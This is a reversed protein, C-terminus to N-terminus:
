SGLDLCGVNAGQCISSALLRVMEASWTRGSKPTDSQGLTHIVGHEQVTDAWGQKLFDNDLDALKSRKTRTVIPGYLKEDVEREEWDLIRTDSSSGVGGSLVQDITILEVGDEVRHNITLYLTAARIIRRPM